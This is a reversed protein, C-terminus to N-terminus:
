KLLVMKKVQQFEDAKIRYFYVGSTLNQGNFEVEHTGATMSKDILTEVKQGLLNYVEIIVHKWGPISFKFRTVPNFPNPYNQTVRFETPINNVVPEPIATITSKQLVNWSKNNNEHIETLEDDADIVAYIRPFTGLGDPIKWQMEVEMTGRAPMVGNTFVQSIGGEGTILTGGSDPDGVYFRVGIPGPTPLLSFNHVQCYITIVEGERPDQPKFLIDKTQYRKSEPITYGKEPYYRWPLIFAPDPFNGYHTNWWTPDYGPPALEPEVAYDIVLAGNTAWYAYPTVKYSTEGFSMDVADLHVDLDIGSEVTTRQTQINDSNYSGEMSFGTGWYSVSVGWDRSYEYTTTAEAETFDQFNLFWNFFSNASLEFSTDLGYDGKIKEILMPNDTLLPYRRYSLINGVEHNPTYTYASWRNSDFWRNEVIQPEVVLVYGKLQNNGYVPYEWLDYNMTTAYIQDDVTALAEFGVSVTHSSGDVKSFKKGYKETLHSSVSLGWFSFGASLTTSMSWDRNIETQVETSQQSEKVYRATFMPENENYSRCVDYSQNDFVDFHIPPANLIVLPQLIETVSYRKPKGLKIDGDVNGALWPETKSMPLETGTYKLELKDFSGDPNIQIQYIESIYAPYWNGSQIILEKPQYGELTDSDFNGCAMVSQFEDKINDLDAWVSFNLPQDCKYIKFTPLEGQFSFASLLEDTGNDNVDSATLTSSRFYCGENLLTYPWQYIIEGINLVSLQSNVTFPILMYAVSDVGYQYFGIVAQESDPYFFKGSAMNFCTVDRTPDTQTYLPQKIKAELLGEAENYSYVDAFIQWGAPEYAMRGCLLIEDIGDANFDVCEIDYLYVADECVYIVPPATMEQDRISALETVTLSDSVDYISIEIKGDDAWYAVAFEGLSDSDFNGCKVFIGDGLDWQGNNIPAPSSKSVQVIKGWANTSDVMLRAPDAKLVSIEVQDAALRAAVIEQLEDNDLDYLDMDFYDYTGETDWTLMQILTDRSYPQFASFYKYISIEFMPYVNGITILEDGGGDHITYSEALPDDEPLQAHILGYTLFISLLFIICNRM